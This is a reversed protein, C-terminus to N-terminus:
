GHHQQRRDETSLTTAPSFLFLQAAFRGNRSLKVTGLIKGPVRSLSLVCIIVPGRAAGGEVAVWETHVGMAAGLPPAGGVSSSDTGMARITLWTLSAQSYLLSCQVRPSSSTRNERSYKETTSQM